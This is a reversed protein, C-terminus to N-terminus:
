HREQRHSDNAGPSTTACLQVFADGGKRGCMASPVFTPSTKIRRCGTGCGHLMSKAAHACPCVKNSCTKTSTARNYDGRPVYRQVSALAAPSLTCGARCAATQRKASEPNPKDCPRPATQLSSWYRSACDGPAQQFAPLGCRGVSGGGAPWRRCASAAEAIAGGHVAQSWDAPVSARDWAGSRTRSSEWA